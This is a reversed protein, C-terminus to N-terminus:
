QSIGSFHEIELLEIRFGALDAILFSFSESLDASLDLSLVREVADECGSGRSIGLADNHAM